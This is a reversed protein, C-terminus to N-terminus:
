KSFVRIFGSSKIANLSKSIMEFLCIKIIETIQRKATAKTHNCGDAYDFARKSAAYAQAIQM